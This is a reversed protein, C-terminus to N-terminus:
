CQCKNYFISFPTVWWWLVGKM